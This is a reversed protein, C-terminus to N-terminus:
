GSFSTSPKVVRAPHSDAPSSLYRVRGTGHTGAQQIQSLLICHDGPCVEKGPLM